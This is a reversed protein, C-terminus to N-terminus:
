LARLAALVEEEHDTDDTQDGCGHRPGNWEKWSIDEITPINGYCIGWVPNMIYLEENYIRAAFPGDYNVSEGCMSCGRREAFAASNQNKALNDLEHEFEIQQVQKKRMLKRLFQQKYESEQYQQAAGPFTARYLRFEKLIETLLFHSTPSYRRLVRLAKPLLRDAGHPAESIIIDFRLLARLNEMLRNEFDRPKTRDFARTGGAPGKEVYRRLDLLYEPHNQPRYVTFFTKLKKTERDELGFGVIDSGNGYNAQAIREFQQRVTPFPSQDDDPGFFLAEQRLTNKVKQMSNMM